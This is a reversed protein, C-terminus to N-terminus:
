IMIITILSVPLPNHYCLMDRIEKRRREKEKKKQGRVKRRKRRYDPYM